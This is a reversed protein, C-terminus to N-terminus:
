YRLATSDATVTEAGARATADAESAAALLEAVARIRGNIEV